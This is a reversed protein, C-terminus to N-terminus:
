AEFLNRKLKLKKSKSKKLINMEGFKKSKKLYKPLQRGKRTPSELKKMEGGFGGTQKASEKNKIKFNFNMKFKKMKQQKEIKADQTDAKLRRVTSQEPSGKAEEVKNTKKINKIQEIIGLVINVATALLNAFVILLIQIIAILGILSQTSLSLIDSLMYLIMFEVLIICYLIDNALSCINETKSDYPLTLLKIFFCVSICVITSALQMMPYNHFAIILLPLLLDRIGILENIFYGLIYCKQRVNEKLFKWKKYIEPKEERKMASIAAISALLVIYVLLTSSALLKGLINYALDEVYNSLEIYISLVLDLEFALFIDIFISIGLYDNVKRAISKPRTMRSLAFFCAKIMLGLGFVGLFVFSNNIFSCSIESEEFKKKPSCMLESEDAAIPNPVMGLVDGEFVQLFSYLNRPLLINM